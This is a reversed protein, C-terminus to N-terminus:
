NRIQREEATDEVDAMQSLDARNISPSDTELEITQRTRFANRLDSVCVRGRDEAWALLDWPPPAFSMSRVAGCSDTSLVPRSSKLIELVAEDTDMDDRIRSTDFITIVGTQSAVACVHGSPSWATTFCSDSSDALSLRPEATELWEYNAFPTEGDGVVGSLRIKRCFFARPEDGVAVLLEQDPSITAHNM